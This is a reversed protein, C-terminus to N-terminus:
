KPFKGNKARTGVINGSPPLLRNEWFDLFTSHNRFISLFMFNLYATWLNHDLFVAMFPPLVCFYSSIPGYSWFYLYNSTTTKKENTLGKFVIRNVGEFVYNAHTTRSKHGIQTDELIPIMKLTGVKVQFIEHELIKGFFSITCVSLSFNLTCM